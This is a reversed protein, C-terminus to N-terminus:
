SPITFGTQQLNSNSGARWKSPALSDSLGRVNTELEWELSDVCSIFDPLSEDDSIFECISDDSGFSESIIKKCYKLQTCMRATGGRESSDVPHRMLGIIVYFITIM